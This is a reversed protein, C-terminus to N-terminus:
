LSDILENIQKMSTQVDITNSDASQGKPQTRSWSERQGSLNAEREITEEQRGTTETERRVTQGVPVADAPFEPLEEGAILREILDSEPMSSNNSSGPQKLAGSLGGLAGLLGEEEGAAGRKMRDLGQFLSQFNIADGQKGLQTVSGIVQTLGDMTEKLQASSQIDNVRTYAIQTIQHLFYYIGLRTDNSPSRMGRARLARAQALERQLGTKAQGSLLRLRIQTEQVQRQTDEPSKKDKGFRFM